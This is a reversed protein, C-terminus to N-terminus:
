RQPEQSARCRQLVSAALRRGGGGEGLFLGQDFGGRRERKDDALLVVQGLTLGRDGALTRVVELVDALEEPLEDDPAAAAEAAEELLKALM